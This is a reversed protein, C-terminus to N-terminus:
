QDFGDLIIQAGADNIAQKDPGNYFNDIWAHEGGRANEYYGYEAPRKNDPRVAEPDVYVDGHLSAEDVDMRHSARLSGGTFWLAGKRWYGKQYVHVSQVLCRHIAAVMFQIARGAAGSPRLAAIMRVNAAMADQLAKINVSADDSM